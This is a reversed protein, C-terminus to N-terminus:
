QNGQDIFAQMSERSTISVFGRGLKIWGLHELRKLHRSVVERASGTQASLEQHTKRLTDDPSSLLIRVLQRDIDVTSIEGMRVIVNALRRSLDRFVFERFFRSEDLARFFDPSAVAFASVEDETIGEAPYRSAGLLCSTTLICSEGPSVQYLLFERGSETFMRAQVHGGVVLLYSKCDSGPLFVLSKAPLRVLKASERLRTLGEDDSTLFTPFFQQWLSEHQAM